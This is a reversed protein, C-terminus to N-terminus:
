SKEGVEGIIIRGITAVVAGDSLRVELTDGVAVDRSSRVVTGGSRAVAYGRELVALPSLAHLRGALAALDARSADQRRRVSTALRQHITALEHRCNALRRRPHQAELRHLLAAMDRRRARLQAQPQQEALRRELAALTARRSSTVRTMAYEARDNTRDLDHRARTLRLEIERHLRRVEKALAAALETRVPVVLEAAATPTSARQDAALDCLSLDVEHGVASVVPVPCAAVARVVREDNFAALDTVSGGGRGIIVVDVGARVILELALVLAAPAAAGQVVADAIVIPVPFRREVTRIIDRVAAGHKSTVIGIRTPLTPLPRKRSDAFLGEAALKARLQELALAATGLGAPEVFDVYLQMRGDREYVGLKGRVRLRQGPELDFRVRALDRSWIVAPVGANGDRLQFYGHGSAARKWEALEGEVWVTGVGRDLSSSARRILDAVTLPKERSASVAAPIPAIPAAPTVSVSGFSLSGQKTSDAMGASPIAAM